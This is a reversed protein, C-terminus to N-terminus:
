KASGTSKEYKVKSIQLKSMRADASNVVELSKQQSLNTGGATCQASDLLNM